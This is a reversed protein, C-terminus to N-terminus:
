AKESLKLIRDFHEKSVPMVSLRSTTVLQFDKFKEDAKIEKLTVSRKLPYEPAVDVVVWQPDESTPDPYAEKIVKALGVIEKGVNSHYIFVQDGVKMAKMNNRAAFNRVGDWMAKGERTLDNWGFTDPETKMLWYAM